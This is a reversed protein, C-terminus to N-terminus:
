IKIPNVSLTELSVYCGHHKIMGERFLKWLMNCGFQAMTSNIYLDQKNLAEALSCSPGQDADKIKRLQPFLKTVTPLQPIFEKNKKPQTVSQLTGLVVQGTKALNGIDLWYYKTNYPETKAKLNVTMLEKGIEIRGAATDICTITINSGGNGAFRKNNAKWSFGFFQNIRTTLVVAKNLGLDAPSFLQRGINATTVEDDDWTNVMLGPHGLSMLAVNMRALNSLVQSGTGGLGVLDVTVRHQPNLLYPAAYHINM